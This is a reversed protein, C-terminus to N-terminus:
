AFHRMLPYVARTLIPVRTALIPSIATTLFTLHRIDLDDFESSRPLLGRPDPGERPNVRTSSRTESGPPHADMDLGEVALDLAPFDRERAVSM